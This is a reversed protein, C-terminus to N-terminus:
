HAPSNHATVLAQLLMITCPSNIQGYFRLPISRTPQNGRRYTYLRAELTNQTTVQDIAGWPILEDHRRLGQWWRARIGQRSIEYGSADMTQDDRLQHWQELASAVQARGVGDCILRTLAGRNHL